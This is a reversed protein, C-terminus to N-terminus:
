RRGRRRAAPRRRRALERDLRALAHLRAVADAGRNALHMADDLVFVPVVPAGDGGAPAAAAAAAAAEAFGGHDDLRLDGCGTLWM